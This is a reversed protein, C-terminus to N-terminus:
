GRALDNFNISYTDVDRTLQNVIEERYCDKKYLKDYDPCKYCKMGRKEEVSEDLCQRYKPCHLSANIQADKKKRSKFIPKDVYSKSRQANRWQNCKVCDDNAIYRLGKGTDEYEHGYKCVTGLYHSQPNYKIPKFKL